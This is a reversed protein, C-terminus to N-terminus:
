VLAAAVARDLVEAIEDLESIGAGPQVMGAAGNALRGIHRHVLTMEIHDIRVDFIGVFRKQAGDGGFVAGLVGDFHRADKEPTIEHFLVADDHAIDVDVRGEDPIAGHCFGHTGICTGILGGDDHREDQATCHTWNGIGTGDGM